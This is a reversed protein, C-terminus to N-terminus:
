WSFRPRPIVQSRRSVVVPARPLGGRRHRRVPRGKTPCCDLLQVCLVLSNLALPFQLCPTVRTGDHNSPRLEQSSEGSTAASPAMKMQRRDLSQVWSVIFLPSLLLPFQPQSLHTPRTLALPMSRKLETSPRLEQFGEGGNAVSPALSQQAVIWRSCLSFPLPFTRSLPSQTCSLCTEIQKSCLNSSAVGAETKALDSVGAGPLRKAVNAFLATHKGFSLSDVAYPRSLLCFTIIPRTCFTFSPRVSPPRLKAKRLCM